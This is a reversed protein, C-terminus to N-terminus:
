VQKSVRERCSARGIEGSMTFELTGEPTLRRDFDVLQIGIEPGPLAQRLAKEIEEATVLRLGPRHLAMTRVPLLTGNDPMAVREPSAGAIRGQLLSGALFLLLLTRM